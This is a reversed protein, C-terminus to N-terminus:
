LVFIISNNYSLIQCTEQAAGVNENNNLISAITMVNEVSHELVSIYTM